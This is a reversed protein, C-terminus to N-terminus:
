AEEQQYEAPFSPSATGIQQWKRALVYDFLTMPTESSESQDAIAFDGVVNGSQITTASYISKAQFSIDIDLAQAIQSIVSFGYDHDGSEIRAIRGLYTNARDALENQTLGLIRRRSIVASAFEIHLGYKRHRFSELAGEIQSSSLTPEYDELKYEQALIGVPIDLGDSLNRIMRLTLARKRNLIESVRSSGGIYPELDKRTLGKREMHFDIAEIPDPDPIEFHEKEYAEVLTALVVLKDGEPTGFDADFLREIEQIAEHYDAATRIPKIEM